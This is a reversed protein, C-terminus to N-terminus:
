CCWTSSSSYPASVHFSPLVRLFIEGKAVKEVVVRVSIPGPDFGPRRPSFGSCAVAQKSILGKLALNFGMQWKSANNPAWWIRSTLLILTLVFGCWTYLILEYRKTSLTHKWYVIVIQSCKLYPFLRQKSKCHRIVRLYVTPLSHFTTTNFM